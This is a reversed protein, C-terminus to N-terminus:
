KIEGQVHANVRTQTAKHSIVEGAVKMVNTTLSEDMAKIQATVALLGTAFDKRAEAVQAAAETRAAAIDKVTKIFRSDALAAQKAIADNTNSVASALDNDLERRQTAMDTYMTCFKGRAKEEAAALSDEVTKM